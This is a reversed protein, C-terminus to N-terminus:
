DSLADRIATIEAQSDALLQVHDTPGIGLRAAALSEQLKAQLLDGADKFAAILSAVSLVDGVASGGRSDRDLEECRHVAEVIEEAMGWNELVAKSVNVHWDAVISGFAKSDSFLAPHRAARTLIYLHGINHMLGALLAVDPNVRTCRKAVVYSVSAVVVSRQWLANLEKEIGRYQEAKRLQAMAFTIAASRLMQFGIRAVATRLDAIPRGSPNLAASGAMGVVRAALAPEAGIVRVVRDIGANEDSLIRQVRVVVDPFSPLEIKGSSLELALDRVFRFASGAITADLMGDSMETAPNSAPATMCAEEGNTRTDALAVRNKLRICSLDANM